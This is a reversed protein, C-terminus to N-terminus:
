RQKKAESKIGKLSEKVTKQLRLSRLNKRLCIVDDELCDVCDECTKRCKGSLGLM